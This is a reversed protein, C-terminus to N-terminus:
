IRPFESRRRSCFGTVGLLMIVLLIASAAEPASALPGPISDTEAVVLESPGIDNESFLFNLTYTQGAVTSVGQYFTDLGSDGFIFGNTGTSYGDSYQQTDSGSSAATWKKHLLNGGGNVLTIDTIYMFSPSDAGAISVYSTGTQDATFQLSYDVNTLSTLATPNVLDLLQVDAMASGAACLALLVTLLPATTVASKGCRWTVRMPRETLM